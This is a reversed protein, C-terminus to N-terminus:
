EWLILQRPEGQDPEPPEPHDALWGAAAAPDAIQWLPLDRGHAEPRTSRALGARHILGATALARVAAGVVRPDTGSPLPVAARLPDSTIPGDMLLLDIYARQLRRVLAARRDRLLTLAEDRRREGENGGAAPSLPPTV